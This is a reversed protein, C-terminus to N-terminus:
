IIQDIDAFERKLIKKYKKIWKTRKKLLITYKYLNAKYLEVQDESQKLKRRYYEETKPEKIM